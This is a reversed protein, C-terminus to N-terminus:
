WGGESTGLFLSIIGVRFPPDLTKLPQTELLGLLLQQTLKRMM